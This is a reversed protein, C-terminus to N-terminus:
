MCCACVSTIRVGNFFKTHCRSHRAFTQEVIKVVISNVTYTVVSM